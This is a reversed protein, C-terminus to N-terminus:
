HTFINCPIITCQVNAHFTIRMPSGIYTEAQVQQVEGTKHDRSSNLFFVQMKGQIQPHIRIYIKNHLTNANQAEYSHVMQCMDVETICM